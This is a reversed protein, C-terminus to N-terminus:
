PVVEVRQMRDGELIREAVGLGETIRGFVTYEHDLRFNDVLNVFWQADGTDRGRSSVGLTGRLHPLRGLEDRMFAADGVYETAGPSGGQLVFDPEVRQWTLGDYYGSRALRVIRAVTAPAEAPLLQIVFSGGGSSGAMSIRLRPSRGLMVRALPEERIPLPAPRPTITAGSWQSLLGAVTSAVTTDFDALYPALRASDTLSGMEGLRALVTLRPDRANESRRASLSDFADLLAPGASSDPAGALAQAAALVVQYGRSSLASVYVSDAEHKRLEALGIIAAERVNDDTDTALRFLLPLARAAAAARGAYVRDQWRVSGAFRTIEPAARASDLRALSLLAHAPRQWVHDPIGHPAPRAVLVALAAAAPGPDACGLGLADIATLAVYDNRDATAAVIAACDPRDTGARAAGIAAVRVIVSSDALGRRVLGARSEAGLQGAGALALRRVQEDRDHAAQLVTTSDLAGGVILGLVAIRRTLSDPATRAASRLFEVARPAPAGTVRRPLALWYLGHAVGFTPAGGAHDLIAAEAQRAASSDAFRLRGLAEAVADAVSSDREATLRGTLARQATPVDLSSPGTATAGRRLATLAQAIANAAEARVAPDPDGLAPILRTALDPRQLRGIGRAALRRMLSDPSRLGDVLPVVGEKGTGRADEAVLLRQLALTDTRPGRQAQAPGVLALGLLLAVLSAARPAFQIM